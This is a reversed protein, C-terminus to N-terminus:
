LMLLPTRRLQVALPYALGHMALQDDDKTNLVLLDTQFQEILQVHEKLRHGLAVSQHVEVDVDAEELVEQCSQVYDQPEKLLQKALEERATETDITPIKSIADLMRDLESADEVHTLTLKGGPQTMAVAYNVLRHDGALHDTIAMVSDTNLMRERFAPDERPNPILLVPADAVQTLVDVTEGLSYPWSWADSHLNRYTVLLDPREQDIRELLPGLNKSDDSLVVQLDPPSAERGADLFDSVAETLRREPTPFDTILLVRTIRLPQYEYPTRAASRFESEFQDLNTM